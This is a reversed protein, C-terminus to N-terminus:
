RVTEVAFAKWDRQSCIKKGKVGAAAANSAAPTPKKQETGFSFRAEEEDYRTIQQPSPEGEGGEPKRGGGFIKGAPLVPAASDVGSEATWTQM